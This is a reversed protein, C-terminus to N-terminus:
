IYSWRPPLSTEGGEGGADPFVAIQPLWSEEESKEGGKRKDYLEKCKFYNVIGQNIILEIGLLFIITASITAIIIM